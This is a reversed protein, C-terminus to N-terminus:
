NRPWLSRAPLLCHQVKLARSAVLRRLARHLAHDTRTGRRLRRRRPGAPLIFRRAMVLGCLRRGDCLWLNWGLISGGNMRYTGLVSHRSGGFRRAHTTHTFGTSVVSGSRWRWFVVVRMWLQRRRQAAEKIGPLLVIVQTSCPNILIPWRGQGHFARRRQRDVFGPVSKLTLRIRHRFM